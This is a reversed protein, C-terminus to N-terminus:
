DQNLIKIKLIITMEVNATIKIVVGMIITADRFVVAAKVFAM